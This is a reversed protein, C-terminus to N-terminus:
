ENRQPTVGGPGQPIPAQRAPLDKNKDIRRTQGPRPSHLGFDPAKDRLKSLLHEQEVLYKTYLDVRSEAEQCLTRLRYAMKTREINLWVLMTGCAICCAVSLLIALVPGKGKEEAARETDSHAAM